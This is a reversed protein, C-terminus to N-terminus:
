LSAVMDKIALEVAEKSKFRPKWGISKLRGTNLRVIPVDGTWGVKGGTRSIAVNKLGMGDIVAEAIWNVEVCDDSAVNYISVPSNPTALATFIADLLDDIYLYSKTQRGDGLIELRAPDALLKRVFDFIVGHTQKGGVVNAPRFIISRLNFMHAFASILGEAAMKGAGYLSVPLLPGLEESAVTHGLDGYVGSGSLYIISSIGTKRMAEVVNYTAITSLRLDLATDKVGAAIDPNAALHFVTDHGTMANGLDNLDLVDGQIYKIRSDSQSGPCAKDYVTVSHEQQTLLYDVLGSGIFGAGGTIFAKM